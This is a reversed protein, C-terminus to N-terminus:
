AKFDSRVEDEDQAGGEGEGSSSPTAGSYGGEDSGSSSDFSSDDDEIDRSGIKEVM